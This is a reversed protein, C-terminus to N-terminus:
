AVWNEVKLGKVRQFERENDTVLTWGEALAHAAIWLDNGGIPKGVKELASRVQGYRIGADEGLPAVL